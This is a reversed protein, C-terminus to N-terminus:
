GAQRELAARALVEVDDSAGAPLHIEFADLLDAGGMFRRCCATPRCPCRM